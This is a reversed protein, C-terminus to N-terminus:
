PKRTREPRRVKQLRGPAYWNWKQLMLMIAPVLYIRLLLADFLIAFALGFGFERLLSTNSLMMSGFAGGMILGCATIIGGTREVATMIAKEDTAGKAVEERIRTTLFIDYDMGLGLAVVFLILPMLWLVQVGNIFQFVVMTMAITVLVNFLVTGILRLPILVSGLVFLLVVYIGVIVIFRMTFFDNSVTKSVDATAATSGGVYLAATGGFVETEAQKDYSRIHDITGISKTTFPEDQLVVSLLITRNNAGFGGRMAMDYTAREGAPLGALFSDNVSAGFPRTPGSVSRINDMAALHASYAEVEAAADSNLTGNVVVPRDFDLVVYTPMLNGEGFGESLADLALKSEAKPLSSIFDYSTHLSFVLVIAPVIVALAAAVIVKRRKLSIKASRRFYGGGREEKRASRKAEKEMTNPWFMKDGVLMLLSPLMTLAFALAMGVAVVLAMGMSRVINYQGIMLAGFGIMVTVGSTSISEGAWTLSTKVAEEKSHGNAREERYRSMIFICYDTGAGLMVTLVFTMVSYHIHMVYLGLLYIAATTTLYAMGVTLLPIWPSVASRFFLGVLLIVLMITVPDIKSTDNAVADMTDVNIAPDGSVYVTFQSTALDAQRHVLDRVLRVDKEAEASSSGVSLSVSMLTTTNRAAPDSSQTNVFQGILPSPLSLPMASLPYGFVTSRALSSVSTSSPTPGLSSIQQVFGATARAENAITAVALGMQAEPSSFDAITLAHAVLTPFSGQQGPFPSFFADAAQVIQAGLFGPVATRNWVGYFANAYGLTLSITQNDEGSSNLQLTLNQLVSQMAASDNYGSAMLALHQNAIQLPTGYVLMSTQNVQAQVVYVAPAAQSIVGEVYSQLASYLYDVRDIGQLGNDSTINDYLNSVFTRAEPSSVDQSQIVITISSVPVRGPFQAAVLNDAKVAELKNLGVDSETYIVVSNIKFILPFAFFLVVIWVVIILKYRRIVLDGLRSFLTM